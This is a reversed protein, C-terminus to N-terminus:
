FPLDLVDVHPLNVVITVHFTKGPRGKGELLPLALGAHPTQRDTWGDMRGDWGM